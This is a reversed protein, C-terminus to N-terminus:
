QIITSLSTHNINKFKDGVICCIRLSPGPLWRKCYSTREIFQNKEILSLCMESLGLYSFVRSKRYLWMNMWRGSEMSFFHIPRSQYPTPMEIIEDTAQITVQAVFSGYCISRCSLLEISPSDIMLCCFYTDMVTPVSKNTHAQYWQFENFRRFPWIWAFGSHKFDHFHCLLLLTKMWGIVKEGGDGDYSCRCAIVTIFNTYRAYAKNLSLASVTSILLRLM